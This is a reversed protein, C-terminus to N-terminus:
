FASVATTDPTKVPRREPTMQPLRSAWIRPTLAWNGAIQAEFTVREPIQQGAQDSPLALPLPLHFKM